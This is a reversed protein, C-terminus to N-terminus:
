TAMADRMEKGEEEQRRHERRGATRDGRCPPIAESPRGRAASVVGGCPKRSAEATLALRSRHRGLSFGHNSEGLAALIAFPAPMQRYEDAGGQPAKQTLANM